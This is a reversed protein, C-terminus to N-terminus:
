KEHLIVNRAAPGKLQEYIDFEVVQGPELTKRNGAKPNSHIATYHVFIDKGERIEIIGFGKTDNFWKVRGVAM